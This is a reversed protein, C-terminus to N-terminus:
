LCLNSTLSCAAFQNPDIIGDPIKFILQTLKFPSGRESSDGPVPSLLYFTIELNSALLDQWGCPPSVFGSIWFVNMGFPKENGKEMTICAEGNGLHLRIKILTQWYVVTKIFIRREPSLLFGTNELPEPHRIEISDLRLSLDPMDTRGSSPVSFSM